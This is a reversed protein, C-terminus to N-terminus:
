RSNISDPGFIKRNLIGYQRFAEDYRDKNEYRPLVSIAPHVMAKVADAINAFARIGAAALVATGLSTAEECRMINIRRQLVDAKIQLWSKSRAAGGLSTVDGSKIGLKELLELNDRLSFAVSELIARVFHSKAHAPTIGYFVGKAEPNVEPSNMGCFHPLLVLGGSGPSVKAASEILTDYDMGNGFEDRFWRLIMGATPIWPMLVFMGPIAHRYLGINMQPDYTPNEVTACIALACGTTETIMGPEINGAGVAAAIQDVPAMTVVTNRSLGIEVSISGAAEGSNLLVPLQKETVDIFDLMRRWWCCNVLDYYLTSPNLTHDTAFNGTLRYVLYDELMLFKAASKFIEPEHDRLWLIKAAPWCPAIDQQGTVHYVLERGFEEKIVEAEAKARNDLWVIAKRLPKGYKDLVILTEGQSTVGLASISEPPVEAQVLIEAIVAKAASWYIEPEAEVIDPAPRELHYEHIHSCLMNGSLDFLAGKLSTTGADLTLILNMDNGSKITKMEVSKRSRGRM